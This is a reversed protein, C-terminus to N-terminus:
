LNFTVRLDPLKAKVAKKLVKFEKFWIEIDIKQRETKGKKVYPNEIGYSFRRDIDYFNGRTYKGIVVALFFRQKDTECRIDNRKNNEEKRRIKQNGCYTHNHESNSLRESRSCM